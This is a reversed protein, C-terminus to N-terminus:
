FVNKVQALWSKMHIVDDVIKGDKSFISCLYRFKESKSIEQNPDKTVKVQM